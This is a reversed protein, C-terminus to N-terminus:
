LSLPDAELDSHSCSPLGAPLRVACEHVLGGHALFVFRPCSLLVALAPPGCQIIDTGWKTNPATATLNRALHNRTRGATNWVAQYALMAWRRVMM